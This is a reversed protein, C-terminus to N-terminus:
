VIGVAIIIKMGSIRQHFWFFEFREAAHFSVVVPSVIVGPLPYQLDSAVPDQQDMTVSVAVGQVAEGDFGAVVVRIGDEETMGVTKQVYEVVSDSEDVGPTGEM